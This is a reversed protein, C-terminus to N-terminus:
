ADADEVEIEVEWVPASLFGCTGVVTSNVVEKGGCKLAWIDINEVLEEESMGQDRRDQKYRELSFITKKM